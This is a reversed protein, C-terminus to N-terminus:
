RRTQIEEDLIALLPNSAPAVEAPMSGGGGGALRPGQQRSEKAAAGGRVKGFFGSKKKLGGSSNGGKTAAEWQMEEYKARVFAEYEAPNTRASHPVEIGSRALEDAFAAFAAAAHEEDANITGAQGDLLQQIAADLSGTAVLLSRLTEKDHDPFMSQLTELNEASSSMANTAIADLADCVCSDRICM